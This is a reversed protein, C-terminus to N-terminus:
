LGFSAMIGKFEASDAFGELIQERTAGNKLVNQWYEVGGAEPERDMFAKYLTTIYQADSTNKNVYEPSLFFNKAADKPTCVGNAISLSWYEIGEKEGARELVVTYMREAFRGIGPNLPKGDERMFGRSIDYQACLNDFEVSNVFGALVFARSQGSALKDVWYNVEEAAPERDFFTRYLVKVYEADSHGKNLFEPSCLFSEAICAGNSDGSFLKEVYFDLGKAESTRGLAVTYMREVFAAVPYLESSYLTKGCDAETIDTYENGKSDWFIGPLEITVNNKHIEKPIKIIELSDCGELMGDWVKIKDFVFNSLDLETLNTCFYFMDECYELQSTDFNSVDLSKLNVCAAFMCSMDHVESTDFGSVDLSELSECGEFMYYMDLVNSTDFSSIDLSELGICYNFMGAMNTVASTDFCSLDLEELSWCYEFMNGMNTVQSTDFNEFTISKVKGLNTFMYYCSTLKCNKVKISEVDPCINILTENGYWDVTELKGDGTLTLEKTDEDYTWVISDREGLTGTATNAAEAKLSMAGFLMTMICIGAMLVGYIKKM